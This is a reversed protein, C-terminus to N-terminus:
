PSNEGPTPTEEDAIDGDSPSSIDMDEIAPSREDDDDNNRSSPSPSRGRNSDPTNDQPSDQSPPSSDMRRNPTRNPTRAASATDSLDFDHEHENTHPDQESPTPSPTPPIKNFKEIYEPSAPEYINIFMNKGYRAIYGALDNFKEAIRKMIHPDIDADELMFPIKFIIRALHEAGYHRSPKHDGCGGGTPGFYEDYQQREFKYLLMNPLAADFYTRVGDGVEQVAAFEGRDLHQRQEIWSQIIVNVNPTRPLPVLRQEKTIFEWDDILQQKITVPIQFMWADTHEDEDQAHAENVTHQVRPGDQNPTSTAAALPPGPSHTVGPTNIIHTAAMADAPVTSTPTAIRSAGHGDVSSPTATAGIPTIPTRPHHISPTTATPINTVPRELMGPYQEGDGRHLPSAHPDLATTAAGLPTGIPTTGTPTGVSAGAPTRIGASASTAVEPRIPTGGAAGVPSGFPATFPPGVQAGPTGVPSGVPTGPTVTPAVVPNRVPARVIPTGVAPAVPTGVTGIPRIPPPAVVPSPAAIPTRRMDAHHHQPPVTNSNFSQRIKADRLLGHAIRLNVDNHEFVVSADVEANWSKMWGQYNIVYTTRANRQLVRLVAGEYLLQGHYALVTDNPKFVRTAPQPRPLVPVTVPDLSAAAVLGHQM